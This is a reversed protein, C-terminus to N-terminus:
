GPVKDWLRPSGPPDSLKKRTMNQMLIVRLQGMCHSSQVQLFLVLGKEEGGQM